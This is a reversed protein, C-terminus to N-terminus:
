MFDFEHSTDISIFFVNNVEIYNFLEGVETGGEIKVEKGSHRLFISETM